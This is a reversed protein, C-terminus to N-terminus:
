FVLLKLVVLPPVPLLAKVTAVDADVLLTHVPALM